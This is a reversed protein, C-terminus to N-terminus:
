AALRGLAREQGRHTREGPRRRQCRLGGHDDAADVGSRLVHPGQFGCIDRRHNGPEHLRGPGGALGGGLDHQGPRRPGAATAAGGPVLGRCTQGRPRHSSSPDAYDTSALEPFPLYASYFADKVKINPNYPWPDDLGRWELFTHSCFLQGVFSEDFSDGIKEFNDAACARVDAYWCM